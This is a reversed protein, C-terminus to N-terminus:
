HVDKWYAAKLMYTLLILIALAILVLYGLGKREIAHPEAMWGMFNVLDAVTRDYEGATMSGGKAAEIVVTKKEHGEAHEVEVRGEAMGQLNWLVHPMAVNPFVSNNWGTVTSPDRYFRRLYTYLWDVGRVRAEVSLDPPANGFWERQDRASAAVKMMDGVKQGTFLLNDKIQAETLGIGKLQNYRVLSASHCNLCSNVFTRAGAQLSAADTPNIPARDLQVEENAAAPLAIFASTALAAILTIFSKMALRM